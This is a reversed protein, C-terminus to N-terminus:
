RNKRRDGKADRGYKQAGGEGRSEQSRGRKRRNDGGRDNWSKGDRNNWSSERPKQHSSSGTGFEQRSYSEKRPYYDDGWGRGSDDRRRGDQERPQSEVRKPNKKNGQNDKWANYNQSQQKAQNKAAAIKPTLYKKQMALVNGWQTYRAYQRLEPVILDITGSNNAQNTFVRHERGEQRCSEASKTCGVGRTSIGNQYAHHHFCVCGPYAWPFSNTLSSQLVVGQAGEGPYVWYLAQTKPCQLAWGYTDLRRGWTSDAGDQRTYRQAETCKYQDALTDVNVPMVDELARMEAGSATRVHAGGVLLTSLTPCSMLEMEERIERAKNSLFKGFETATFTTYPLIDLSRSGKQILSTLWFYYVNYFLTNGVKDLFIQSDEELTGAEAPTVIGTLVTAKVLYEEKSMTEDLIMADKGAQTKEATSEATTWIEVAKKICIGRFYGATVNASVMAVVVQRMFNIARTINTLDQQGVAPIKPIYSPEDIVKFLLDKDSCVGEAQLCVLAGLTPGYGGPQTEKYKRSLLISKSEPLDMKFVQKFDDETQCLLVNEILQKPVKGASVIKDKNTIRVAPSSLTDGGWMVTIEIPLDGTQGRRWFIPVGSQNRRARTESYELIEGTAQTHLLGQLAGALANSLGMMEPQKSDDKTMPAVQLEMQLELDRDVDDHRLMASRGIGRAVLLDRSETGALYILEDVMQIATMSKGSDQYYQRYCSEIELNTFTTEQADGPPPLVITRRKTENQALTLASTQLHCCWAVRYSLDRADIKVELGGADKHRDNIRATTERSLLIGGMPSNMVMGHAKEGPTTLTNTFHLSYAAFLYAWRAMNDQREGLVDQTCAYKGSGVIYDHVTCWVQDSIGLSAHAVQIRETADALGTKPVFAVRGHTEKSSAADGGQSARFDIAPLLIVKTDM